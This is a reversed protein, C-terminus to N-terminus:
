RDRLHVYLDSVPFQADSNRLGYGHEPAQDSAFKYYYIRDIGPIKERLYPWATEVYALQQNTGREGSETIWVARQLGNLFDAVGGSVVVKEFQKGYYHIAWVDVFDQAGASRMDRNYDVSGPFNQNISTTAANLVLKGPALNKAANYGLALMEVYNAPSNNMDMIVNEPDADMNPENWVQWGIVAPHNAYRSVVKKFWLEIFTVRPNGGIWHGSNEMWTPIGNVVLLADVGSPVCNVLQDYFSFNPQSGASSQVGDNWNVLIRLYKLKLSNSIEQYQQCPTGFQPLNGFANVGMRSVDIPKRPVDDSDIIQALESNKSCSLLAALLVVLILRYRM